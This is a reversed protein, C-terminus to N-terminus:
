EAAKGSLMQTQLDIRAREESPKRGSGFCPQQICEGHLMGSLAWISAAEPGIGDATCFLDLGTITDMSDGHAVAHSHVNLSATALGCSRCVLLRLSIM